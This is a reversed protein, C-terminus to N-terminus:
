QRRPRSAARRSRPPKSAAPEPESAAATGAHKGSLERWGQEKCKRDCKATLWEPGKALAGAGSEDGKLGQEKAGAARFTPKPVNFGQVNWKSVDALEGLVGTIYADELPFPAVVGWTRLLAGAADRSVVYSPGDAYPPYHSVPYQERTMAWEKRAGMPLQNRRYVPTFKSGRVNGHIANRQGHEQLFAALLPVNVFMDDDMKVIWKASPCHDVAWELGFRVKQSLNLYTDQFEGILLDNNHQASERELFQEWGTGKDPPRSRGVM